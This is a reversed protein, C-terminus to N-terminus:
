SYIRLATMTSIRLRREWASAKEACAQKRPSTKSSGAGATRIYGTIFSPDTKQLSPQQAGNAFFIDLKGDNDFDFLAVGGAMTEIQHKEPTPSNHLVFSVGSGATRDEFWITDAAHAAWIVLAAMLGMAAASRMGIYYM